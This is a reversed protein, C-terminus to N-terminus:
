LAINRTEKTKFPKQNQNAPARMPLKEFCYKLFSKPLRLKQSHLKAAIVLDEKYRITGCYEKSGSRLSKEIMPMISFTKPLMKSEKMIKALLEGGQLLRFNYSYGIMILQDNIIKDKTMFRNLPHTVSYYPTASIEKIWAFEQNKAVENSLLHIMSSFAIVFNSGGEVNKGDSKNLAALYQKIARYNKLPIYFESYTATKEDFSSYFKLHFKQSSIQKLLNEDSSDFLKGDLIGSINLMKGESNKTLNIIKNLNRVIERHLTYAEINSRYDIKALPERDLSLFYYAQNELKQRCAFHELYKPQYSKFKLYTHFFDVYLFNQPIEDQISNIVDCGSQIYALDIKKNDVEFISVLTKTSAQSSISDEVKKDKSVCSAALFLIILSLQTISSRHNM